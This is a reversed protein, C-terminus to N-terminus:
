EFFGRFKSVFEIRNKCNASALINAIYYKVTGEALGMKEALQKRNYGDCILKAVTKEKDSFGAVISQLEAKEVDNEQRHTPVEDVIAEDKGTRAAAVYVASRATNKKYQILIYAASLVLGGAVGVILWWWQFPPQVTPETADEASV